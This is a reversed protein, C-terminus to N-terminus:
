KLRVIQIPGSTLTDFESAAKVATRADVGMWM